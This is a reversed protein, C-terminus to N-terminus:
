IDKSKQRESKILRYLLIIGVLFFVAFLLITIRANGFQEKLFGYLFTGIIIGLKETVDYFSFFSTTDTNGEPLLKSYTSRSLSQIGGMVLGVFAATAYFEFPAHITFAYICVLLWVSNVVVLAKLNGVKKALLTTGYAGPIAILNILLISLILGTKADSDGWEIENIGFYTAVIMITQVAMSYSFFAGLYGKLVKHSKVMKWIGLLEKYGNGLVSKSIKNTNKFSPLHKFTYLSFGVWWLGVMVFSYRMMDFASENDDGQSIIMWLNFILLLTSGLFGLSFGKASIADQRDVTAIDPLFSNYFAVSCWFGILAFFYCGLGFYLSDVSDFWYFGICSLAGLYCFFRLFRKKTGMYDAIGSLLPTILVVILFAFATVYTILTENNISSGLFTLTTNGNQKVIVSWFIPFITSGIVLNYVSNAWDYFAWANLVKPQNKKFTDPTM